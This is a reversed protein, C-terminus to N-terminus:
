VHTWWKSNLEDTKIKGSFVDYRYKDVLYVFPLHSIKELAM